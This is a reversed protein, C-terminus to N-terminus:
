CKGHLTQHQSSISTAGCETRSPTIADPSPWCQGASSAWPSVQSRSAKCLACSLHNRDPIHSHICDLRCTGLQVSQPNQRKQKRCSSFNSSRSSSSSSSDSVSPPKSWSIPLENPLGSSASTIPCSNISSGRDTAEVGFGAGRCQGFGWGWTVSAMVILQGCGCYTPEVSRGSWVAVGLVDLCWMSFWNVCTINASMCCILSGINSILSRLFM